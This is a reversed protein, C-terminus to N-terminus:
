GISDGGDICKIMEKSFNIDTIGLIAKNQQGIAKSIEEISEIVRIPIKKEIAIMEFNKKTREAADTAVLLLKVRDKKIADIVMETGFVIKGAKRTLGLLGLIKHNIM